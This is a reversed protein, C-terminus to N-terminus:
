EYLSVWEKTEIDVLYLRHESQKYPQIVILWALRIKDNEDIVETLKARSAYPTYNLEKAVTEYAERSSEVKVNHGIKRYIDISKEYSFYAEGETYGFDHVYSLEMDKPEKERWEWSSYIRKREWNLPNINKSRFVKRVLEDFNIEKSNALEGSFYLVEGTHGDLFLFDDTSTSISIEIERNSYGYQLGDIAYAPLEQGLLEYWDSLITEIDDSTVQVNRMSEIPYLNLREEFHILSDKEWTFNTNVFKFGRAESSAGLVTGDTLKPALEVLVQNNKEVVTSVIQEDDLLTRGMRELLQKSMKVYEEQSHKEGVPETKRHLQFVAGSIGHIEVAYNKSKLYYRNHFDETEPQQFSFQEDGTMNKALEKAEELQVLNTSDFYRLRVEADTSALAVDGLNYIPNCLFLFLIAVCLSFPRKLNELWKFESKKILHYTMLLGLFVILNSLEMIKVGVLIGILSVSVVIFYFPIITFWRVEWYNLFFLYLSGVVILLINFFGIFDSLNVDGDVIFMIISTILQLSPLTLVAIDFTYFLGKMKKQKLTVIYYFGIVIIYGFFLFHLFQRLSPQRDNYVATIETINAQHLMEISLGILLVLRVAFGIYTALRTDNWKKYFFTLIGYIALATLSWIIIGKSFHSLYFHNDIYLVFRSIFEM